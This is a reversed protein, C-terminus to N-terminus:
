AEYWGTIPKDALDKIIESECVTKFNDVAEKYEARIKTTEDDGEDTQNDSGEYQKSLYQKHSELINALKEETGDLPSICFKMIQGIYRYMKDYDNEATQKELHDKHREIIDCLRKVSNKRGQISCVHSLEEKILEYDNM